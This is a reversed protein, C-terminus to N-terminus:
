CELLYHTHSTTHENCACPNTEGTAFHTDESMTWQSSIGTPHSKNVSTVISEKTESNSACVSLCCLGHNYVSVSM